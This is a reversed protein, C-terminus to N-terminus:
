LLLGPTAPKVAWISSRMSLTSQILLPAVWCMTAAWFTPTPALLRARQYSNLAGVPLAGVSSCCPSMLRPGVMAVEYGDIAMSEDSVMAMLKKSFPTPCAVDIYTAPRTEVSGALVMCVGM